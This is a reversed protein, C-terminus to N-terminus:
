LQTLIRFCLPMAAECRGRLLPAACSTLALGSLVACFADCWLVFRSLERCGLVVCSMVVRHLARYPVVLCDSVDTAM